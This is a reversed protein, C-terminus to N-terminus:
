IVLSGDDARNPSDFNFAEQFPMLELYQCEALDADDYERQLNLSYEKGKERDRFHDTWPELGAEALRNVVQAVRPDDSPLFCKFVHHQPSADGPPYIQVLDAFVEDGVEKRFIGPIRTIMRM